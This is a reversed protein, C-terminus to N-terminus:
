SEEDDYCDECLDIDDGPNGPFEAGCRYCRLAIERIFGDV